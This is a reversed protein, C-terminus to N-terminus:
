VKRDQADLKTEQTYVQGLQWIKNKVTSVGTGSIDGLYITLGDSACLPLDMWEYDVLTQVLIAPRSASDRKGLGSRLNERAGFL